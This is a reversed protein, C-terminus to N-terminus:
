QHSRFNPRYEHDISAIVLKKLLPYNLLRSNSFLRFYKRNGSYEVMGAEVQISMKRNQMLNHQVGLRYTKLKDQDIHLFDASTYSYSLYIAELGFTDAIGAQLGAGSLGAGIYPGFKVEPSLHFSSSYTFSSSLLLTALLLKKKM